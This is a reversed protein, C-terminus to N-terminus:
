KLLRKIQKISEENVLTPKYLSKEEDTHKGVFNKKIIELDSKSIIKM